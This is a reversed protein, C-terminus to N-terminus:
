NYSDNDSDKHEHNVIDINEEKKTKDFFTLNKKREFNINKLLKRISESTDSINAMKVIVCFFLLEFKIYYHLKYGEMQLFLFM